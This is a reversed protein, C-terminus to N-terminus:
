ELEIKICIPLATTPENKLEISLGDKSCAFNDVENGGLVTVNYIKEFYPM